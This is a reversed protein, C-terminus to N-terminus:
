PDLLDRITTKHIALKVTDIVLDANHPDIIYPAVETLCAVRVGDTRMSLEMAECCHACTFHGQMGQAIALFASPKDESFSVAQMAMRVDYPALLRGSKAAFWASIAEAPRRRWGVATIAKTLSAGAPGGVVDLNTANGGGGGGGGGGADVVGAGGGGGGFDSAVVANLPTEVSSYGAPRREPHREYYAEPLSPLIRGNADRPGDGDEYNNNDFNDGTNHGEQIVLGDAGYLVHELPPGESAKLEAERRERIVQASRKNFRYCYACLLALLAVIVLPVFVAAYPFTDSAKNVDQCSIVAFYPQIQDPQCAASTTVVEEQSSSGGGTLGATPRNADKFAWTQTGYMIGSCDSTTFLDLRRYAAGNNACSGSLRWSNIKPIGADTLVSQSTTTTTTTTTTTLNFPKKVCGLEESASNLQAEWTPPPVSMPESKSCGAEGSIFYLELHWNPRNSPVTIFSGSTRYGGVEGVFLVAVVSSVLQLLLLPSSYFGWLTSSGTGGYRSGGGGGHYNRKCSIAM